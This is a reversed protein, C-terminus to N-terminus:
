AEVRATRADGRNGYSRIINFYDRFILTDPPHEGQAAEGEPPSFPNNELIRCLIFSYLCFLIEVTFWFIM